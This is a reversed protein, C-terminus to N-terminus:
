ITYKNSPEISNIVASYLEINPTSEYSIELETDDFDMETRVFNHLM